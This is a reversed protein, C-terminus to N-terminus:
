VKKEFYFFTEDKGTLRMCSSLMAYSAANEHYCKAVVRNLQVEYLGWEAAAAFAERGYGNGAYEPLIRCGLEADGRYNFRYLVAEGIFKGDLRVAFNVAGRNEFDRKAVEFFSREEVPAGLGAVDDYGWLRNRERDLVLRNYDPIDEERIADLTLRATKLLPIEKVNSLLENQPEVRYKPALFAPGYQLKSTRLGKNAADDERNIYKVDGGFARAFAQVTAPYVGVYSYLAKEIHVILTDGCKEALALSILKGDQVIGGCRFDEEGARLLMSKAVALERVAMSNDGKAFERDYDEWFQGILPMDEATLKRFEAHPCAEYFKKIHNRQGSYRRGAFNQLDESHYVYDRWTRIDSVKVYPYRALLETVRCKPVVSIVPCIGREICDNEIAALAAEEDGDPGAVPYDHVFEGHICNRIVLCGAVETWTPHLTDRWMLKTGLSYECLVYNCNKYYERLIQENDAGIELFDLM